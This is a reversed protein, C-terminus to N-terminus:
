MNLSVEVMRANFMAPKGCRCNIVLEHKQDALSLLKSTTEFMDGNYKSKLGYCIVNKNCLRTIAWLEEAQKQTLFQAEDVLIFEIKEIAKLFTKNFFCYDNSVLLNVQVGENQRNIVKNNGKKDISPKMVFVPINYKLYNYRDQLLKTTKGAEMTGYFFTLEGM